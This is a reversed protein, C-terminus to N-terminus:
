VTGSGSRAHLGADLLPLVPGGVDRDAKAEGCEDADANLSAIALAAGALNKENATARGNRHATGNSGGQNQQRSLWSNIFRTMGKRTKRKDPNTIAWARMARLETRIDVAPYLQQFEQIFKETVPMQEGTTEFRNTPISLFIPSDDPPPRLAVGSTKQKGGEDKMRGGEDEMQPRLERKPPIPAAQDDDPESNVANLAVYTRIEDTIIHIANPKKPRQYKRFNRIAGYKRGGIEFAKICDVAEIEALLADVSGDKTPRLRMRLTVPKWEFVGQDDAETWLGILFMQADAGLMAFAEDTFLGPHISRIRAM